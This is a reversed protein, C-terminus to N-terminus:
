FLVFLFFFRFLFLVFFKTVTSKEPSRSFLGSLSFFTYVVVVASDLSNFALYAFRSQNGAAGHGLGSEREGTVRRDEGYSDDM